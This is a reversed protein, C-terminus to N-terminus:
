FIFTLIGSIRIKHRIYLHGNKEFMEHIFDMKALPLFSRTSFERLHDVSLIEFKIKPGSKPKLAGQTGPKFEGFIESTEVEKDWKNWNSVDEWLKWIQQKTADTSISVEKEWM